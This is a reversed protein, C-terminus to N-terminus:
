TGGDGAARDPMVYVSRPSAQMRRRRIAAAAVAIAAKATAMGAEAASLWGLWTDVLGASKVGFTRSPSTRANASTPSVTTTPPSKVLTVSAWRLTFYLRLFRNAYRAAVPSIRGNAGCGSAGTNVSAVPALLM